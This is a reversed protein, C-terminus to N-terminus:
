FSSYVQNVIEVERCKEFLEEKLEVEFSNANGKALKKLLDSMEVKLIKEIENEIFLLETSLLPFKKGILYIASVKSKSFEIM